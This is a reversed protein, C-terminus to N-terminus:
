VLGRDFAANRADVIAAAVDEALDIPITLARGSPMLVKAASFRDFARLDIVVKGGRENLAVRVEGEGKPIATRRVAALTDSTSQVTRSEAWALADSLRYRVLRGLKCFRPGRGTLRLQRLYVPTLVLIEALGDTDVFREPVASPVDNM